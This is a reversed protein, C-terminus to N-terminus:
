FQWTANLEGSSFCKWYFSIWWKWTCVQSTFIYFSKALKSCFLLNFLFLGGAWYKLIEIRQLFPERHPWCIWMFAPRVPPIELLHIQCYFWVYTLVQVFILSFPSATHAAYEGSTRGFLLFKWYIHCELCRFLGAHTINKIVPWEAVGTLLMKASMSFIVQRAHGFTDLFPLFSFLIM